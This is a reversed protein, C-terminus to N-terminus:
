EKDGMLEDANEIATEVKEQVIGNVEDQYIADDVAKLAEVLERYADIHVFAVDGMCQEGTHLLGTLALGAGAETEAWIKDPIGMGERWAREQRDHETVIASEVPDSM